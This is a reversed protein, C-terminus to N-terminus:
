DKALHVTFTFASGEGLKSEVHITEGMVDLVEKAISLGLGTGRGSHSKDSKYFRDFVYPLDDESIGEGTDEVSIEVLDNKVVASLIVKGDDPTHKIANDILIVLIQQIRDANTVTDPLSNPRDFHFDVGSDLALQEFTIACADLVPLLNTRQVQLAVSRSQLRSLELLDDVLRTMRMSERLIHDYYRQRKEEDTLLGDRLTESMARISAMPTRLEHSINAVYDRRTQELKESKEAFDNISIALEGIEGAHNENARKSFDGSSMASAVEEVERIPDTLRKGIYYAPIIMILCSVLASIILATNMENLKESLEYIPKVIVVVGNFAEESDVIPTGIVLYDISDASMTTTLEGSAKVAKFANAAIDMDVEQHETSSTDGEGEITIVNTDDDLDYVTDRPPVRPGERHPPGSSMRNNIYILLDGDADLAYVSADVFNTNENAIMQFFFSSELADPDQSVSIFSAITRSIQILEESRIDVFRNKAIFMYLMASLLSVLIVALLVLALLRRFFVSKWLKM